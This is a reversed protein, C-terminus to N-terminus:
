WWWGRPLRRPRQNRDCSYGGVAGQLSTHLWCDHLCHRLSRTNQRSEVLVTVQCCGPISKGVTVQCYGPHGLGSYFSSSAGRRVKKGRIRKSKSGKERFERGRGEVHVRSAEVERSEGEKQREVIFAKFGHVM